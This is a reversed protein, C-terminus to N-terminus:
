SVSLEREVGSGHVRLRWTTPDIRPTSTHNRVFFRDTPTLYGQRSMASWRMEANTGRAVFLSDPTPKVIGPVDAAARSTVSQVVTPGVAAATATLGGVRLMQRRTLRHGWRESSEEDYDREDHLGRDM